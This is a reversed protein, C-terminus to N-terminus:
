AKPPRPPPAQSLGSRDSESPPVLISAVALPVLLALGHPAQLAGVSCLAMMPCDKGCGPAKDPCCPMLAPMAMGAHAHMAGHEHATAHIESPMAMAPRTLPALVLGAVALVAFVRGILTSAKM